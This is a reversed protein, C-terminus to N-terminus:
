SSDPLRLAVRLQPAVLDLDERHNVLYRTVFPCIPVVQFSRARADALAGAVLQSGLGRGEFRSEIETHTFARVAERGRYEAFGALEGDVHLEYREAEHVDIVNIDDPVWGM